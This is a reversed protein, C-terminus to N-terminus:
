RTVAADRRSGDAEQDAVFPRIAVAGVAAGIANMLVDTVDSTRGGALVAQGLEVAVSGIAAVGIITALGISPRRVVLAAGLPAFLLVNGVLEAVARAVVQRGALAERLDWFPEILITRQNGGPLTPTLLTAVVILAIAVVLVTESTTQGLAEQWTTRRRRLLFVVSGVVGIIAFVVLALASTDLIWGLLGEM